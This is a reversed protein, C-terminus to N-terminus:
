GRESGFGGKVLLPQALKPVLDASDRLVLGTWEAIVLPSNHIAYSGWETMEGEAM